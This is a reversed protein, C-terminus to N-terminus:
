SIVSNLDTDKINKVRNWGAQLVNSIEGHPGHQNVTVFLGGYEFAVTEIMGSEGSAASWSVTKVAVLKYTQIVQVVNKKGVFFVEATKFPTGSAANLFLAPSIADIFKTIKFPNFTIKGAGAGTSQSGINLTQEIDSNCSSIKIFQANGKDLINTVPGIQDDFTGNSTLAKAQFDILRLYISVLGKM